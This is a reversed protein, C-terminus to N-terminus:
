RVKHPLPYSYMVQASKWLGMTGDKLTALVKNDKISVTAKNNWSVTWLQRLDPLENLLCRLFDWKVPFITHIFHPCPNFGPVGARKHPLTVWLCGGNCVWLDSYRHM